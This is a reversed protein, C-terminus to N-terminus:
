NGFWLPPFLEQPIPTQAYRTRIIRRASSRRKRITASRIRTRKMKSIRKRIPQAAHRKDQISQVEPQTNLNAVDVDKAATRATMEAQPEVQLLSLTPPLAPISQEVFAAPMKEQLTRLSPMNALEEHTARLLAAAGLGFIMVSTGLLLTMVIFRFGPLM